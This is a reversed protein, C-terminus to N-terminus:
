VFKFPTLAKQWTGQQRATSIAVMLVQRWRTKCIAVNILVGIDRVSRGPNYMLWCLAHRSNRFRGLLPSRIRVWLACPTRARYPAEPIHGTRLDVNGQFPHLRWFCNCGTSRQLSCRPLAPHALLALRETRNYCRPPLRATRPVISLCQQKAHVPSGARRRLSSSCARAASCAWFPQWTGKLNVQNTWNAELGLELKIGCSSGSM